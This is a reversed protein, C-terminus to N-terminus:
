HILSPREMKRIAKNPHPTDYVGNLFLSLNKVTIPLKHQAKKQL